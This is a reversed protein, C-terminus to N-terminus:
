IGGAGGENRSDFASELFGNKNLRVGYAKSQWGKKTKHGLKELGQILVPSMLQSEVFIIDPLFQHHVRPTQIALDMNYGNVLTRYLVQLVASIIMPGGQAGVAMVIKGNKGVLTPSMSSLPRKGPEVLNGNGQVLKYSNGQGPRTTFDDMENNLAIGYKESVVKSGYVNNLTVTLSVANGDADVVSYHTTNKSEQITPADIPKLKLVKNLQIKNAWSKMKGENFFEEMPNKHFDPDGLLVRSRFTVKMIESLLHLEELSQPLHKKVNLKEILNLASKLILGGSSPPPMLYLDHGAFQTRIPKLWRVKYSRLDEMSMVGGLNQITSVVDEGISGDYFAKPGQKRLLKLAKLLGKQKLREGPKYSKVGNKFFHQFAAKNFYKKVLNTRDVWEGSVRFNGNALNISDDFLQSWRLRGHKKHLAWLGAPFGPVGIANGGITSATKEKGIYFKKHTKAPATERFDLVEVPHGKMKVQAFGGGGLAAFYPSTVSLTLGMAVAVDVVNGGKEIIKEATRAALPTPGSVMMKHGEAPVAFAKPTLTLVGLLVSICIFRISFSVNQLTKHVLVSMTKAFSKM